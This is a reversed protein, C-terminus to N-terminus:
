GGRAQRKAVARQLQLREKVTLPRKIAEGSEAIRAPQFIDYVRGDRGRTKVTADITWNRVPGSDLHIFHNTPYWGVGGRFMRRAIKAAPQLNSDLTIDIARGALHQSKEAVGFIRRALMANTKKTRYASLVTASSQGATEIVDALFDLTEVFVPGSVNERHDRLFMALDIMAEPIPGLHDRYPGSFVDGTHANRLFLRRPISRAPFTFPDETLVRANAAAGFVLTLGTALLFDRRRLQM